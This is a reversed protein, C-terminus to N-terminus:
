AAQELEVRLVGRVAAALQLDNRGDRLLRQDLLDEGIQTQLVTCRRTRRGMRRPPVRGPWGSEDGNLRGPAWPFAAPIVKTQAEWFRPLPALGHSCLRTKAGLHAHEAGDDAVDVRPRGGDVVFVEILAEVSLTASKTALPSQRKLPRDEAIQRRTQLKVRM